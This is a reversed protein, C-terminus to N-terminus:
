SRQASCPSRSVAGRPQSTTRSESGDAGVRGLPSSRSASALATRSAARGWSRGCPPLPGRAASGTSTARRPCRRTSREGSEQRTRRMEARRSSRGSEKTDGHTPQKQGRRGHRRADAAESRTERTETRRSSRVADGTDGHTPQKQGRRGHRRADAAESRTERTGARRGSRVADGTDGRTPRKERSDGAAGRAKRQRPGSAETGRAGASRDEGRPRPNRTHTGGPEPRRYVVQGVPGM